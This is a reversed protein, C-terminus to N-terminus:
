FSIFSTFSTINICLFECELPELVQLNYYDSYVLDYVLARKSTSPILTFWIRFVFIQTPQNPIFTEQPFLTESPLELSLHASLFLWLGECTHAVLFCRVRSSPLQLTAPQLNSSLWHSNANTDDSNQTSLLKCFGKGQNLENLGWWSIPM